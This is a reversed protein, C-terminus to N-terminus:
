KSGMATVWMKSKQKMVEWKAPQKRDEVKNDRVKNTTNDDSEANDSLTNYDYMFDYPSFPTDRVKEDRNVNAILSM